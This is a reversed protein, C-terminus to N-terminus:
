LRNMTAVDVSQVHDELAQIPDTVDDLCVLDDIIVCSIVLKFIGYAVPEKKYGEGWTLGDIKITSTILQFLADLDADSEWPKVEIVVQSREVKKQAEKEKKAEALKEARSKEKKPAEEVPQEEEDDFLDDFDDANKEPEPAKETEEKKQKNEKKDKKGEKKQEKQEKKPEEAKPKSTSAAAAPCTTAVRCPRNLTL